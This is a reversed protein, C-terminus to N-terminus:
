CRSSEPVPLADGDHLPIPAIAPSYELIVPAVIDRRRVGTLNWADEGSAVRVQYWGEFVRGVHWTPPSWSFPEYPGGAFSMSQGDVVIRDGPIGVIVGIVTGGLRDRVIVTDGRQPAILDYLIPASLAKSGCSLADSVRAGHIDFARVSGFFSLYMVLSVFGYAVAAPVAIARSWRSRRRRIDVSAAASIRNLHRQFLAIPAWFCLVSLALVSVRVFSGRELVVVGGLVYGIIQLLTPLWPRLCGTDAGLVAAEARRITRGTMFIAVVLPVVFLAGVSAAVAYTTARRSRHGPPTEIRYLFRQAQYHWVASYPFNLFVALGFAAAPRRVRPSVEGNAHEM